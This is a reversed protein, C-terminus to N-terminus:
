AARAERRGQVAVREAAQQELRFRAVLARLQEATSALDDAQANVENVQGAMEQASSSVLETTSASSEAALAIAGISEGVGSASAAMEEAAATAEEVVASISAMADSVERARMSMARTAEAIEGVQGATAEVAEVIEVLARGAEDARSSGQTVQRAGEAMATVVERTGAQVARILEGIAKTERQSREALKRVEDAVVAFGRGHEGARAAEIAANLALLNTQEAVDDITEVVAGIKEGLKGLEEVRTATRAVVQEIARMGSVTQGVAAMGAEASAHARASAQAVADVNEAVQDVGAAMAEATATVGSVARAQEQAGRAVQDIAGLLHEVSRTTSRATGAQEGVTGAVQQLSDSVQQVTAEAAGATSGLQRSSGAVGESAVQIDGVVARLSVRAREYGAVTKGLRELMTNTLLATEGIEDRDIIAAPIPSTTVHAPASLDNEGMAQLGRELSAACSETLSRLTSQVARVQRTIRWSILLGAALGAGVALLCLGITITWLWQYTAHGQESLERGTESKITLFNEMAGDVNRELRAGDTRYSAMAADLMGNEIAGFIATDRWDRYSQWSRHLRALSDVDARDTDAEDMQRELDALATDTAVIQKRIEQREAPTGAITYALVYRRGLAAQQVYKTLMQSGVLVDGYLTSQSDDLRDLGYVGFTGLIATLLAMAGFTTLLKARVGFAVAGSGWSRKM